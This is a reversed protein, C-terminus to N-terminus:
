RGGRKGTGANAVTAKVVGPAVINVKAREAAQKRELEEDTPEPPPPPPEVSEEIHGDKASPSEVVEASPPEPPEPGASPSKPPTLDAISGDKIGWKYTDTERAWEPAQMTQGAMIQYFREGHGGDESTAPLRFVKSRKCHLNLAM